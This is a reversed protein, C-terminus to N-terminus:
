SKSKTEHSQELSINHQQLFTITHSSKFATNKSRSVLNRLDTITDVDSWIPLISVSQNTGKIKAMTEKFVMPTSWHIEELINPTFTTNRFGILYYGGDSSPGLVVDHTQLEAFASQLFAEPLDPSDSGMLVVKRFGKTFADSFCNKMQEGLDTGKQPLFSFISGLWEHFKKEADVPFFCIFLHTNIKKITTLTDDVFCRYLEQITEEDIDTTLRRKVKGKEPYKVFLLICTNPNKRM